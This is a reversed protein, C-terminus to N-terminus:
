QTLTEEHMFSLVAEQSLHGPASCYKFHVPSMLSINSKDEESLLLMIPEENSDYVRNGIKVKM